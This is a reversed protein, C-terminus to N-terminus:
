DGVSTTEPDDKVEKYEIPNKTEEKPETKTTDEGGDGDPTEVTTEGGETGGGDGGESEGKSEGEAGADPNTGEVDGYGKEAYEIVTEFVTVGILSESYSNFKSFVGYQQETIVAVEMGETGATKAQFYAGSGISMIGATGIAAVKQGAEQVFTTVATTLSPAAAAATQTAAAATQTTAAVTGVGAATKTAKKLLEKNNDAIETLKEITSTEPTETKIEKPTESEETQVVEEEAEEEEVVEEEEVEAGCQDCVCKQEELEKIRELLAWASERIHRDLDSIIESDDPNCYKLALAEAEALEKRHEGM